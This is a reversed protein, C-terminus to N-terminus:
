YGWSECLVGAEPPFSPSLPLPPFPFPFPSSFPISGWPNTSVGMNWIRFFLRLLKKGYRVTQSYESSSEKVPADFAPPTHCFRSKWGIDRKIWSIICSLAMIVISHSYSVTGFSEFPVIKLSRPHGRVYEIDFLEFIAFSLFCYKCHRVLLFEFLCFVISVIASWYSSTRSRDFHAM